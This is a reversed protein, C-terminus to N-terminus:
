SIGLLEQNRSALVDAALQRAELSERRPRDVVRRVMVGVVSGGLLALCALLALTWVLALSPASAPSATFFAPPAPMVGLPSVITFVHRLLDGSEGDIRPPDDRPTANM